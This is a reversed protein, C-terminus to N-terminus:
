ENSVEGDSTIESIIQEAKAFDLMNMASELAKISSEDLQSKL